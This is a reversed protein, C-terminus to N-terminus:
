KDRVIPATLNYTRGNVKFSWFLKDDRTTVPSVSEVPLSEWGPPIIPITFASNKKLDYGKMGEGQWVIIDGSFSLLEPGVLKPTNLTRAARTTLDYVRIMWQPTTDNPVGEVWVVRSGSIAYYEGPRNYPVEKGIQFDDGTTLNHARLSAFRKNSSSVDLYIVWQGEIKPYWQYGAPGAIIIEEGTALVHAYFGTKLRADEACTYCDFRWIVYQETMAGFSASGDDNGLRIDQGSKSDHVFLKYVGAHENQISYRSPAVTAVLETEQVETIDGVRVKEGPLPTVRYPRVPGPQGDARTPFPTLTAVGKPTALPSGAVV